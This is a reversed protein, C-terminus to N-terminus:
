VRTSDYGFLASDKKGEGIGTVFRCRHASPRAHRAPWAFAGRRPSSAVTPHQKPPQPKVRPAPSSSPPTDALRRHSSAPLPSSTPLLCRRLLEVRRPPSLSPPTARLPPSPLLSYSAARLSCIEPTSPHHMCASSFCPADCTCAADVQSLQSYAAPLLLMSSFQIQKVKHNPNAENQSARYIDEALQTFFTLFTAM